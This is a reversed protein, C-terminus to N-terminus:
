SHSLSAELDEITPTSDTQDAPTQSEADQPQQQYLYKERLKCALNNEGMDKLAAIMKEWSPNEEQRSWKDFM